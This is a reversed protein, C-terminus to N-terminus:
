RASYTENMAAYGDSTLAASSTTVKAPPKNPFVDMIPLIRGGCLAVAFATDASTSHRSVFQLFTKERRCM